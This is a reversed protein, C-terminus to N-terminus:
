SNDIRLFVKGRRGPTEAARVAEQIRDLPYSTGVETTLIGARLLRVIRRFLLLMTVNSQKMAWESLLFGEIAKQGAILEMSEVPIAKGSLIGYILVRGGPALARLVALGTSGGVADLAFSVGGGGTLEAVRKEISEDASSIVVDAGLSRLEEAQERRRVVNITRFGYHKGLRIIM